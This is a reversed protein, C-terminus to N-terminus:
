KPTIDYHKDLFDIFQSVNQWGLHWCGVTDDPEMIDKAEKFLKKNLETYVKTKDLDM